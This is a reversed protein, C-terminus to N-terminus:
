KKGRTAEFDGGNDYGNHSKGLTGDPNIEQWYFFNSIGYTGMYSGGTIMVLGHKKHRTVMGKELHSAKTTIEVDLIIRVKEPERAAPTM